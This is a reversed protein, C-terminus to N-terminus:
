FIFYSLYLIIRINIVRSYEQQLRQNDVKLMSCQNSLKEILSERDSNLVEDIVEKVRILVFEESAPDQKMTDILEDKQVLSFVQKVSDQFSQIRMEYMQRLNALKENFERNADFRNSMSDNVGLRNPSQMNYPTGFADKRLSNDMM